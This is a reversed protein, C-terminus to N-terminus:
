RGRMGPPGAPGSAAGGEPVFEDMSPKTLENGIQIRVVTFNMLTLALGDDPYLLICNNAFNVKLTAASGSSFEASGGGSKGGQAENVKTLAGKPDLTAVAAAETTFPIFYSPWKHAKLVEDLKSGIKIGKSTGAALYLDSKNRAILADKDVYKFYFMDQFFPNARNFVRTPDSPWYTLPKLSCAIADTVRAENGQGSITIGLSYTDNLRYILEQQDLALRAVRVTYAWLPLAGPVIDSGTAVKTDPGLEIEKDRYLFVLTNERVSSVSPPALGPGRGPMMGPMMGPGFPAGEGPMPAAALGSLPPQAMLIATPEGLLDIVDKPKMGLRVRALQREVASAAVLTALMLIGVILYRCKM